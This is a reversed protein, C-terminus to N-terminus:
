RHRCSAPSATRSPVRSSDHGALKRPALLLLRAPAGSEVLDLLGTIGLIRRVTASPSRITLAGGDPRLRASAAAIVGLGAADIFDLTVLDLVIETHGADALAHILAGLGPATLLDLEGRVGVVVAGASFRIAVEFLPDVAIAQFAVACSEVMLHGELLM